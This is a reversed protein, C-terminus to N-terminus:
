HTIYKVCGSCWWTVSLKRGSDVRKWQFQYSELTFPPQLPIIIIDEGFTQLGVIFIISLTWSGARLLFPSHRRFNKNRKLIYKMKEARHKCEKGIFPVIQQQWLLNKLRFGKFADPQKFPETFPFSLFALVVAKVRMFIGNTSWYHM